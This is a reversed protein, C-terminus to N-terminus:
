ELEHQKMLSGNRSNNNFTCKIRPEKANHLSM